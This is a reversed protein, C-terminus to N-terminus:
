KKKKIVEVKVKEKKKHRINIITVRNGCNPCKAHNIGSKKPLPLKLITKCKPCKKFVFNKKESWNEFPKLPFRIIKLFVENEKQRKVRDKSVVRFIFLVLLLIKALDLFFNHIFFTLIILIFLLILIFRNLADILKGIYDKIMKRMYDPDFM